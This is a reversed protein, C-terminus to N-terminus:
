GGRKDKQPDVPKILERSVLNEYVAKMRNQRNALVNRRAVRRVVLATLLRSFVNRFPYRRGRRIDAVLKRGLERAKALAEPKEEIRNWGRLVGLTGSVASSGFMGSVITTLRKAVRKAGFGGATSIGVVYKDAFASTYVSFMGLRDFLNKMPANPQLGYTPSGFVLGDADLLTERVSEFDDPTWCRGEAMCRSCGTCYRIDLDFLFIEEVDAGSEAAAKLAQRVLVATNGDRSPSSIVGVIKM